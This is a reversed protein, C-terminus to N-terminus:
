TARKRGIHNGSVLLCKMPVFRVGGLLQEQGALEFGFRQYAEVANVSANVTVEVTGPAWVCESLCHQWLARGIGRRQLSVFLSFLHKGERVGAVGVIRGSLEALFYEFDGGLRHEMVKSTHDSLFKRQGEESLGPLISDKAVEEILWSIAEADQITARRITVSVM